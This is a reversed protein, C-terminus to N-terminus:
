VLPGFGPIQRLRHCREDMISMREIEDTVTEIDIETAEV